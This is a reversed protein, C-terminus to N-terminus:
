LQFLSDALGVNVRLNRWETISSIRGDRTTHWEAPLLLQADIFIQDRKGPRDITLLYLKRGREVETVVASTAGVLAKEIDNITGGLHSEVFTSGDKDRLRKDDPEMTIKFVSLIGGAHARVKGNAMLVCRAGKDSGGTVELRILKPKKFYFDHSNVKPQGTKYGTSVVSCQYDNLANFSQRLKTILEQPTLPAYAQSPPGSAALLLLTIVILVIKRMRDSM